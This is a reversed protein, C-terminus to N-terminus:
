ERVDMEDEIDGVLEELVDELTVIGITHGNDQVVALHRKKDRFLCLLADANESADVILCPQIITAVHMDGKGEIMSQLIDYSMVVGEIDHIANGFVPFRSHNERFVKKAAQSITENKHVSIIDKLPTMIDQATKDNLIFARHVLQSEDSEIHGARRGLNVLSRIQQETGIKREGRKFLRTFQELLWIVPFMLVMLYSVALSVPIALRQSYHIGISKPLIEAFLIIGFTLATTVVALIADGYLRITVSGVLMSGAINVANNLV